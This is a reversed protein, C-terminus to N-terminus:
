MGVQRFVFFNKTLFIHCVSCLFHLKGDLIDETPDCKSFFDRIHFKMKQATVFTVCFHSLLIVNLVQDFMLLLAKNRFYNVVNKSFLETM